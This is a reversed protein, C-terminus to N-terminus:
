KGIDFYTALAMWQNGELNKLKTLLLEIDTQNLQRAPIRQDQPLWDFEFPKETIIALLHERGPKGTVKFSNYKAGEQPLCTKGSTIRTSPAFLSPCLCDSM